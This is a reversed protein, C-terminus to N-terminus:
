IFINVSYVRKSIMVMRMPNRRAIPVIRATKMKMAYRRVCGLYHYGSSTFVGVIHCFTHIIVNGIFDTSISFGM